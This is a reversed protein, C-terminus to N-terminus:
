LFSLLQAVAAAAFAADNIHAPSEVVPVALPLRSKLEATFAEIGAPDWLPSGARNAYSFGGRPILVATRRADRLRAALLRASAALEDPRAQLHTFKPSHPYHPRAREEETLESAPGRGLIDLGGPCVVQPIGAASAATLRSPLPVAVGGFITGNLEHTTLDIVGAFRGAHIFAEFAVSGIGNAHFTAIEFGAAELARQCHLVAPNTIGLGTIGILRPGAPEAAAPDVLSCAVAAARRLISRLLPNLGQLDCLSPILIVDTTAIEPRPDFPFTSVVVKGVGFPLERMVELAIWTGVGGGIALYCGAAPGAQLRRSIEAAKARMLAAKTETGPILRLDVLECRKGQEAIRAALFELEARKTDFAGLLVVTAATLNM